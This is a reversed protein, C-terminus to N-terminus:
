EIPVIKRMPFRIESVNPTGTETGDYRFVGQSWRDDTAISYATVAVKRRTGLLAIDEIYLRDPGDENELIVFKYWGPGIVVGGVRARRDVYLSFKSSKPAKAVDRQLQEPRDIWKKGTAASIRALWPVTAQKGTFRFAAIGGNSENKWYVFVYHHPAYGPVESSSTWATKLDTFDYTIETVDLARIPASEGDQGPCLIQDGQFFADLKEGPKPGLCELTQLAPGGSREDRQGNDISTLVVRPNSECTGLVEIMAAVRLLERNPPGMVVLSLTHFGPPLPVSIGADTRTGFPGAWTFALPDRGPDSSASGNLTVTAGGTITCNTALSLHLNTGDNMALTAALSAGVDGAPPQGARFTIRSAPTREAPAQADAHGPAWAVGLWCAVRALCCIRSIRQVSSASM